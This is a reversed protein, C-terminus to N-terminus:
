QAGAATAADLAEMLLEKASADIEPPPALTSELARGIIPRAMVVGGAALATSKVFERRKM